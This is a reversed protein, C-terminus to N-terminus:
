CSELSASVIIASIQKRRVIIRNLRRWFSMFERNYYKERRLKWSILTTKINKLHKGIFKLIYLFHNQKRNQSM